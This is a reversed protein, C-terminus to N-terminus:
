AVFLRDIGLRTMVREIFTFGALEHTLLLCIVVLFGASVAYILRDKRQREVQVVPIEITPIVALVEYGFSRLVKVDKVSSDLMEKLYVVGLGATLGALIGMIILRVRNPSVPKKPIVAPDVIRFTTAKDEVEMQKSLEAQGQRMMLQEYIQRSAEREKVLDSLKKQDAPINRLQSSKSGILGQLQAQRANLGDLESEVQFAQQKLNQFLPNLTSVESDSGQDLKGPAKQQKKQAEILARLRVVEPYSETYNLLLLKL